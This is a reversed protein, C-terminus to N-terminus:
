AHRREFHFPDSWNPDHSRKFDGGWRNRPDLSKWFDGAEQYDEKKTLQIGNKWLYVDFALGNCHESDEIGVGKEANWKAQEPTRLVERIQVTYGRAIMELAWKAFHYGFVFQQESLRM